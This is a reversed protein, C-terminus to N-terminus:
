SPTALGLNTWIEQTARPFNLTYIHLGPAGGAVLREGLATCVEVALERVEAPKGAVQDLKRELEAPIAAGNVLSFRRAQDVNVFAFVGPLVPTHVDHAALEDIMRFYDDADFFFQTIGFDAM